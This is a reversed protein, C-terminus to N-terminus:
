FHKAYVACLSKFLYFLHPFIRVPFSIDPASVPIQFRCFRINKLLIVPTKQYLSALFRQIVKIPSVLCICPRFFVDRFINRSTNILYITEPNWHKMSFSKRLMPKLHAPILHAYKACGYRRTSQLSLAWALLSKGHFM